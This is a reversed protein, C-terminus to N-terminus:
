HSDMFASNSSLGEQMLWKSIHSPDIDPDKLILEKVAFFDPLPVLTRMEIAVFYDEPEILSERFINRSINQFFSEYRTASSVMNRNYKHAASRLGRRLALTTAFIYYAANEPDDEILRDLLEAGLSENKSIGFNATLLGAKGLAWFFKGAETRQEAVPVQDTLKSWGDDFFEATLSNRARLKSLFCVSDCRSEIKKMVQNMCPEISATITNSSSNSVQGAALSTQGQNSSIQTLSNLQRSPRQVSSVSSDVSRMDDASRIDIAALSLTLLLLLLALIVRRRDSVRKM